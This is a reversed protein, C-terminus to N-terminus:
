ASILIWSPAATNRSFLAKLLELFLELSKARLNSFCTSSVQQAVQLMSSVKVSADQAASTQRYRACDRYISHTRNCGRTVHADRLKIQKDTLVSM